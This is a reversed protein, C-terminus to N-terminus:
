LEEGLLHVQINELPHTKRGKRNRSCGRRQPKLSAHIRFWFGFKETTGRSSAATGANSSGSMSIFDGEAGPSVAGIRVSVKCRSIRANMRRTSQHDAEPPQAEELCNDRVSDRCRPPTEGMCCLVKTRATM